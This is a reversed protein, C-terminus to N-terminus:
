EQEWLDEIDTVPVNHEDIKSSIIRDLKDEIDETMEAMEAALVDYPMKALAQESYTAIMEEACKNAIDQATRTKLKM